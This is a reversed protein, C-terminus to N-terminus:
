PRPAAPERRLQGKNFSTGCASGPRHAAASATSSVVGSTTEFNAISRLRVGQPNGHSRRDPAALRIVLEDVRVPVKNMTQGRRRRIRGGHRFLRDRATLILVSSVRKARLEKLVDLGMAIPLGLDLM